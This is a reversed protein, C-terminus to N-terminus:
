ISLTSQQIKQCIKITIQVTKKRDRFSNTAFFLKKIEKLQLHYAAATLQQNM